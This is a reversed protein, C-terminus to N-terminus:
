IGWFVWVRRRCSRWEKLKILCGRLSNEIM